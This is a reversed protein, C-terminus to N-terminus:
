IFSTVSKPIVISTLSRCHSFAYDRISTVSEPIVISTLSSCGGFARNGISTVSNPIVISTLSSCHSFAYDRISTVSEPIKISTLSKCSYFASEGISTVDYIKGDKKVKYPIIATEIDKNKEKAVAATMNEENYTFELNSEEALVTQCSDKNSSNFRSNQATASIFALLVILSIIIKKM